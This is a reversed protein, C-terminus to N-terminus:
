FGSSLDFMYCCVGLMVIFIGYIISGVMALFDWFRENRLANKEEDTMGTMSIIIYNEKFTNSIFMWTDKQICTWKTHIFNYDLWFLQFGSIYM